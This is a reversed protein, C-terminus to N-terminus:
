KFENIKGKIAEALRNNELSELLGEIEEIIDEDTKKNQIGLFSFNELQKQARRKAEQSTHLQYYETMKDTMHGVMQRVISIPTGQMGHLHCFSHRLSHIGRLSIGKRGEEKKTSAIGLYKLMTNFRYTISDPSGNYLKNLEQCIFPSKIENKTQHDKLQEFLKKLPTNINISVPTETKQTVVNIFGQSINPWQLRCIDALRLGTSIGVMFVTKLVLLDREYNLSKELKPTEQGNITTYPNKLFDNIQKLEDLEFIDKKNSRYKLKKIESFPNKLLGADEYLSKFVHNLQILYENITRHTLQNIETSYIISTKKQNQFRKTKNFKGFEMLYSKYDEAIKKTVERLTKIKPFKKQLYSYFDLWYTEKAKLRRSINKVGENDVKYRQQFSGWVKELPISEGKNSLIIKERIDNLVADSANEAKELELKIEDQKDKANKKSNKSDVLIKTNGRYRKGKHQFDYHWYKGRKILSM